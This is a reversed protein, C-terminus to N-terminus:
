LDFVRLMAEACDYCGRACPLHAVVAQGGGVKDMVKAHSPCERVLLDNAVRPDNFFHNHRCYPCILVLVANRRRVQVKMTNMMCKTCLPGQCCPLPPAPANDCGALACKVIFPEMCPEQETEPASYDELGLPEYEPEKMAEPEQTSAAGSGDQVQQDASQTSATGSGDEVEAEDEAQEEPEAEHDAQEEPEAEDEEPLALSPVWSMVPGEQSQRLFSEFQPRDNLFTETAVGLSYRATWLEMTNSSMWAAVTRIVAQTEADQEEYRPLNQQASREQNVRNAIAQRLMTNFYEPATRFEKAALYLKMKGLGSNFNDYRRALHMKWTAVMKILGQERESAQLYYSHDGRLATMASRITEDLRSAGYHYYLATALHLAFQSTSTNCTSAAARRIQGQVGRSAARFRQEWDSTNEIIGILAPIDLAPTSAGSDNAARLVGSVAGSAAADFTSRDNYYYTTALGLREEGPFNAAARRIQGQVSSSAARFREEWDPLLSVMHTVTPM